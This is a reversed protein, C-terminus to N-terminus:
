AQKAYQQLPQEKPRPLQRELKALLLPYTKLLPQKSIRLLLLILVYFYWYWITILVIALLLWKLWNWIPGFRFEQNNQETKVSEVTTEQESSTSISTSSESTEISESSTTETTEVL